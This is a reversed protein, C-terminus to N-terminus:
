VDHRYVMFGSEALTDYLARATSNTHHTQWYVRTSGAQRAAEDVAEILARGVGHGRAEPSTFLDHLLCTYALMTTTRHFLYHALGIVRGDVEAVLGYMQESPDLLRSWTQDTVAASLATPGVREYFANYGNWLPAWDDRDAATVPRIAVDSM